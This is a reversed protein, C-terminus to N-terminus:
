SNLNSNVAGTGAVTIPIDIHIASLVSSPLASPMSTPVASPICTPVASPMCTPVASPMSTPVASLKPRGLYATTALINGGNYNVAGTGAVTTPIDIVIASLMSTPVASSMSTSATDDDWLKVHYIKSNDREAIYLDGLIGYCASIPSLTAQAGEMNQLRAGTGVITTIIGTSKSIKRIRYNFTDAIYLNGSADVAIDSPYYLSASTALKFDGNFEGTGTGAGTAIIGTM